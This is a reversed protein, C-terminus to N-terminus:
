LTKDDVTTHSLNLAELKCVDFKIGRLNVRSCWALNLHRINCCRRLVQGIGEESIGYGDMLKTGYGDIWKPNSLELEELL